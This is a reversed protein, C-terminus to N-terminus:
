SVSGPSTSVSADFATAQATPVAEPGISLTLSDRRDDAVWQIARGVDIMQETLKAMNEAALRLYIVPHQGGKEGDITLLCAVPPQPSGVNRLHLRSLTNQHVARNRLRQLKALWGVPEAADYGKRAADVVDVLDAIRPGLEDAHKSVEILRARSCAKKKNHWTYRQTPQPKVDLWSESSQILLGVAADFAGCLATLAGDLAMEVGVYRDFGPVQAGIDELTDIFWHASRVKYRVWAPTGEGEVWTSVWPGVPWTRSSQLPVDVDSM